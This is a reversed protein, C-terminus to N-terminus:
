DKKLNKLFLSVQNTYSEAGEIESEVEFSEIQSPSIYLVEFRSLRRSGRHSEQNAENKPVKLLTLSDPQSNVPSSPQSTSPSTPNSKGEVIPPPINLIPPPLNQTNSLPNLIPPPLNLSPVQLKPPSDKRKM